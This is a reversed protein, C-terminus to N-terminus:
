VPAFGDEKRPSIRVYETAVSCLSVGFVDVANIRCGYSLLLKAFCIEDISDLYENVLLFSNAFRPDNPDSITSPDPPPAEMIAEKAIEVIDNALKLYLEVDTRAGVRHLHGSVVVDFDIKLVRRITRIYAGFDNTFAFNRFPVYGPFIFDVVFVVGRASGTRPINVLLDGGVHGSTISFSITLGDPFVWDSSNREIADTPIPARFPTNKSQRSELRNKVRFSSWIRIEASPFMDKLTSYAVQSSGIHDYHDHSYVMDIYEPVESGLVELGADVMRSGVLVGDADYKAFQNLPFDLFAIRGGGKVIMAYYVGDWVAFVGPRLLELNYRYEERVPSPLETELLPLVSGCRKGKELRSRCGDLVSGCSPRQGVVAGSQVSLFTIGVWFWILVRDM